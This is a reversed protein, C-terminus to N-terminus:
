SVQKSGFVVSLYLAIFVLIGALTTAVYVWNPYKKVKITSVGKIQALHHYIQYTYIVVFIGFFLNIISSIFNAVQEKAIMDVLISVFLFPMFLALLRLTMSRWYGAVLEKSRKIADYGQYNEIFFVWAVMSYFVLFIFGPVILLLFWLLALAATWFITLSYAWFYKGAVTWAEKVSTNKKAVILYTAINIRLSFYILLLMMLIALSSNIVVFNSNNSFIGAIVALIIAVLLSPITGLLSMLVVTRLKERFISWSKIFLDPVSPLPTTNNSIKKLKEKKFM